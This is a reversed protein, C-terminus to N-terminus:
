YVKNRPYIIHWERRVADIILALAHLDPNECCIRELIKDLAESLGIIHRLTKFHCILAKLNDEFCPNVTPDAGYILRITETKFDVFISDSDILFGAPQLLYDEAQEAKIVISYLLGLAQDLHEFPCDRLPIYGSTDYQLVGVGNSVVHYCPLTVLLVGSTLISIEFDYLASNTKIAAYRGTDNGTIEIRNPHNQEMAEGTEKHAAASPVSHMVSPNQIM